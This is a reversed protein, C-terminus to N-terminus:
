ELGRNIMVLTGKYDYLNDAVHTINELTKFEESSVKGLCILGFGGDEVMGDLIARVDKM